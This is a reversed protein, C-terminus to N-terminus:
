KLIEEKDKSVTYPIVITNEAVCDQAHNDARGSAGATVIDPVEEPFCKGLTNLVAVLFM